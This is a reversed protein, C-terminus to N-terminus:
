YDEDGGEDDGGDADENEEEDLNEEEIEEIDDGYDDGYTAPAAPPLDKKPDDDPSAGCKPCKPNPKNLDYFKTACSWCDFKKGFKSM